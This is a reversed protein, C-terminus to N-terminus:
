ITVVAGVENFNAQSNSAIFNLQVYNVTQNAKVFIDANFQNKAITEATNNSEDCIIKYESIGKSGQVERLFPEILGIFNARSFEDNFEFLQFKAATAVAKEMAIFLRRISLRDFASPKTLATKDGLLLTGSGAQTVVPNIQYTVLGDRYTKSPNFALKVCNRIIGRNYGAPSFWPNNTSDTRACLGAIDPNLPIWRYTDNYKDYQYKWGSDIVAYSTDAALTNVRWDIINDYAVGVTQDKVLTLPTPSCFVIADKRTKALEILYKAVETNQGGQLLLNAETNEGDKFLDYATFTDTLSPVPDTGGALSGYVNAALKQFAATTGVVGLSSGWALGTTATQPELEKNAAAAGNNDPHSVWFVYKSNNLKRAYYSNTGDLNTGNLAKSGVFTELVGGKTGSILGDEDVVAMAVEDDTYGKVKTTTSTSLTQNLYKAYAWVATAQTQGVLASQADATSGIVRLTVTTPSSTNKAVVEYSKASDAFKLFDGVAIKALNSTGNAGTFGFELLNWGSNTLGAGISFTIGSAGAGSGIGTFTTGRAVNDCYSIQLNNGLVGPYRAIALGTVGAGASVGYNTFKDALDANWFTSALLGGARTAAKSTASDATRIVQLRAGYGVFNAVTFFDLYNTDDPTGYKAAFENETSVTQIQNVPGWKFNGAYAASTNSIVQNVVGTRDIETINIGPSIQFAM